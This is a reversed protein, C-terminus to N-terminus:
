SSRMSGITAATEEATGLLLLVILPLFRHFMCRYSIRCLLESHLFRRKKPFAAGCQIISDRTTHLRQLGPLTDECLDARGIMTTEHPLLTVAVIRPFRSVEDELARM